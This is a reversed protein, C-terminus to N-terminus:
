DEELKENKGGQVLILDAEPESNVWVGENEAVIEGKNNYLRAISKSGLIIFKSM